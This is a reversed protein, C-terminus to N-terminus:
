NSRSPSKDTARLRESFPSGMDLVIGGCATQMLALNNRGNM